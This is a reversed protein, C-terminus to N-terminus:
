RGTLASVTGQPEVMLSVEMIKDLIERVESAPVEAKAELNRKTEALIEACTVHIFERKLLAALVTYPNGGFGIGSILVNADVCVRLDKNPL